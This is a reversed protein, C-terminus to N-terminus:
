TAILDVEKRFNKVISYVEMFSSGTIDSVGEIYELDLLTPNTRIRYLYNTSIGLKEAIAQYKLGTSELLDDLPKYTKTEM